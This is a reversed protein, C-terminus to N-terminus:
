AEAAAGAVVIDVPYVPYNAVVEDGATASGVIGAVRVRFVLDVLRGALNPVCDLSASPTLLSFGEPSGGFAKGKAENVWCRLLPIRRLERQRLERFNMWSYSMHPM